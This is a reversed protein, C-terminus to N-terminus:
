EFGDEFVRDFPLVEVQIQASVGNHTVTVTDEGFGEAVLIGEDTISVIATGSLASYSTGADTGSVDTETGGGYHAIVSLPISSGVGELIAGNPSVTLSEPVAQPQVRIYTDAGYNEPGPGLTEVHVEIRGAANQPIPYDLVYSPGGELEELKGSISFLAATLPSGNDVSFAIQVTQGPEVVTGPPPSISISAASAATPTGALGTSNQPCVDPPLADADTDASFGSFATSQLPAKLLQETRELVDLSSTQSVDNGVVAFNAHVV